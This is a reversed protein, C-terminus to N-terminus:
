RHYSSTSTTRLAPSRRTATISRNKFIAPARTISRSSGIEMYLRPRIIFLEHLFERGFMTTKKQEDQESSIAQLAQDEPTGAPIVIKELQAFASLVLCAFIVLLRPFYNRKM